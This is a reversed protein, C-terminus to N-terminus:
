RTAALLFERNGDGGTIPSPMTGLVRWGLAQVSAQITACVEQHIAPDRVIGKGVRSRGAEFQPKVLAVLTAPVAALPLVAPLVLRLSIFSVDITLFAPAEPLDAATLSRADRGELLRVRPERVLSSHFQERGVDVAVVHAGGRKLLVETFGGTSAGVDLCSLGAPSLGFADLAAALKTGGRSVYPHVAEAHLVAAAPLSVAPKSVVVGDATVLGAEIAERARARSDFLGAEVLAVDARRVAGGRSM